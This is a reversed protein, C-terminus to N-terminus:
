KLQATFLEKMQRVRDMETELAKREDLTKKALAKATAVQDNYEAIQADKAAAIQTHKLLIDDYEAIAKRVPAYIDNKEPVVTNKTVNAVAVPAVIVEEPIDVAEAIIAEEETEEVLNLPEVVINVPEVDMNPEDFFALKSSSEEETEIITTDSISWTSTTDWFFSIDNPANSIEPLPDFIQEVTDPIDATTPTNEILLFSGDQDSKKKAAEFSAATVNTKPAEELVSDFFWM